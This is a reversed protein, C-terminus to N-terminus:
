RPGPARRFVAEVNELYFASDEFGVLLDLGEFQEGLLETRLCWEAEIGVTGPADLRRNAEGLPEV